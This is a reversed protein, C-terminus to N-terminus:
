RLSMQKMLYDWDQQHKDESLDMQITPLVEEEAIQQAQETDGAAVAAKYRPNAMLSQKFYRGQRSNTFGMQEIMEDTIDGEGEPDFGADMMRQPLEAQSGKPGITKQGYFQGAERGERNTLFNQINTMRPDMETATAQPETPVEPEVPTPPGAQTDPPAGEAPIVPLPEQPAPADANAAAAAAKSPSQALEPSAGEEEDEVEEVIIERGEGDRPVINSDAYAAGTKDAEAKARREDGRRKMGAFFGETPEARREGIQKIEERMADQSSMTPKGEDDTPINMNYDRALRQNIGGSARDMNQKFGESGSVYRREADDLEQQGRGLGGELAERRTNDERRARGDIYSQKAAAPLHRLDSGFRKVKSMFNGMRQGMGSNKAATLARGGMNLAGQTAKKGVGMINRGAQMAARGKFGAGYLDGVKTSGDRVAQGRKAADLAQNAQQAAKRNPAVATGAAPVAPRFDQSPMGFIPQQQPQQGMMQQTSMPPAFKRIIDPHSNDREAVAKILPEWSNNQVDFMVYNMDSLNGGKAFIFEMTGLDRGHEIMSSNWEIQWTEVM